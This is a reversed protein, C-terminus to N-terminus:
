TAALVSWHWVIMLDLRSQLGPWSKLSLPIHYSPPWHWTYLVTYNPRFRILFRRVSYLTVKRRSRPNNCGCTASPSAFPLWSLLRRGDVGISAVRRGWRACALSDRRALFVHKWSPTLLRLRAVVSLPFFCFGAFGDSGTGKLPPAPFFASSRSAGVNAHSHLSRGCLTHTHAHTHTRLKDKTHFEPAARTLRLYAGNYGVSLLCDFLTYLQPTM